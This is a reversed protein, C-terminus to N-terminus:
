FLGVKKKLNIQRWLPLSQFEQYSIKFLQNFDENTLYIQLFFSFFTFMVKLALILKVNNNTLASLASLAFYAL